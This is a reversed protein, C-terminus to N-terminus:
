GGQRHIRAYRGYGVKDILGDNIMKSLLKHVAPVSTELSAAIEKPTMAQDDLFCELIRKREASISVEVARGEVVHMTMYSDWRLAIPDENEYDRGRLNLIQMESNNPDRSLAWMSNVASPLGTSGTISDMIDEHKGKNFHHVLLGGSKYREFLQNLPDVTDRDYEYIMENKDMPRRLSALVDVVTLATDPYTQYWHELERYGEEGRPWKTFVHFNEPWAVQRVGLIARARKQIRQQKGELDLYLVRGPDVRYRGLARGNMAVALSMALALWSKKSKYKAALLCAGEPFLDEIIWREPIFEKYQLDALTIGTARWDTRALPARTDIIEGTATDVRDTPQLRAVERPPALRKAAAKYDGGCELLAYVAFPSYAREPEFPSANSSFVYLVNPAVHGYSASVGHPKGPRCLYSVSGRTLVVRWGASELLGLAEGGRQANYLDGPREGTQRQVGQLTAVDAQSLARACDMLIQREAPTIIPLATWDGRLLTYGPSPAVQFQGGRGRTEILTVRTAKPATELETPTPPRTALKLNGSIIECRWVAHFGGSPTRELLLRAPLGPALSEVLAYWESYLTEADPNGKNDFDLGEVDRVGIAHAGNAFWGRVQAETPTVTEWGKLGAPYKKAPDNPLVILGAHHYALATDLLSGMM